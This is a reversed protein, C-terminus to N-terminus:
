EVRMVKKRNKEQYMQTEAAKLLEELSNEEEPKVVMGGISAGLTFPLKMNKTVENLQAYIGEAIVNWEDRADAQQILVFEDGGMRAPIGDPKSFKLVSKAITVIAFDGYEHGYHDNIYKLRDMDIYMILLAQKQKKAKEFLNEALKQYGLRNYMGTMSDRISLKSLVGNMYALKEKKHLNEMANILTKVVSFLYQKEMLYVANRIVLYGVAKDKFHMPLFLFDVGSSKTDFTPFIGDIESVINEKVIGNEYAFVVKMRKPYGETLFGENEIIRTGYYVETTNRFSDMHPDVVLYMADCKLSPICQPICYMMEQVTNCRMLEYELAYVQDEFRSTEIGYMIQNKQYYIDEKEKTDCGCSERYICEATTYNYQPIAEGSWLQLFMEVCLEGVDERIHRITTLRPKYYLAKDFDDFGTVLFDKPAFFGEAAAQECVGVAINDSGCVIADPLRGHNEYLKEFGHVGCEYEFSEYYFDNKSCFIGKQQLYDEVAEARRCAEYNSEPGMLFWFNRCQHKEYLHEMMKQMVQRNDIGAYYFGDIKNGISIAPAGSEKVLRIVNDIVKQSSINNLDVIIGDFQKLDPLNYINYEGADYDKDGSWGGSSNFIYLNIKEETKKIRRLIGAPWAFTLYRKWGDMILAIKKM